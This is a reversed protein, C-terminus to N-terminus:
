LTLIFSLGGLCLPRLSIKKNFGGYSKNEKLLKLIIVEHLFM